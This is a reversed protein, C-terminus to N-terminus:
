FKIHLHGDEYALYGTISARTKEEDTAFSVARQLEMMTAPRKEDEAEYTIKIKHINNVIKEELKM